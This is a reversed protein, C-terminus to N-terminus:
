IRNALGAAKRAVLGFGNLHSTKQLSILLAKAQSSHGSKQLWQAEVLQAELELGAFGAQHAESRLREMESRAAELQSAELSVRASALHFQLKLQKNDSKAVVASMDEIESRAESIKNQSLLSETLVTGAAIEDDVQQEKQFQEKCRRAVAEAEGARGTEISLKALALQTEAVNQMEGIATRLALSQQFADRAGDLDGRDMLVAGVGTWTFAITSNDNRALALARAEAFNTEAKQLEGRQHWLDGLDNLVLAVGVTDETAEYDPIASELMKKAEDLQGRLLFIDGLNNSTAAAGEPDQLLRFRKAAERWMKEAQRLDGRSYFVGAADNMTRAENYRDGASAYSQMANKCDLAVEDISSGFAAGQQCLIGYARAVLLPSGIAAGKAIARKAAVQAAPLNLGIQASAELLDIQPDENAPPPLARLADLTRLADSPNIRFQATALLLGFDLRDRHLNFLSQYIRVANPLDRMTKAYQGAILLQEEQPLRRSLEVARKAEATSKLRYGLHWLADSLASHALPYNADAAIARTSEDRAGVFDFAWLRANAESYHRVAVGNAPLSARTMGEDEPSLPYAGLSTRLDAGTHSAMEFLEEDSGSVADEAITDGTQTDQVRVDLRVRKTNKGNIPAYSGLVVVDAGPDKRLRNLTSEALSDQNGLAIERKVRAVDEASVIRLIGGAALETGLMNTFADSMWDDEHRGPLNRFGLVAVSRRLRPAVSPAKAQATTSPLKRLARFGFVGAGLGAAIVAVAAIRIKTVGWRNRRAVEAPPGSTEYEKARPPLQPSTRNQQILEVPAVFRYGRRPITEIFRPNDASDDLAERLKGVAVSLSADFDVFTNGPWLRQRVTDRSVIEGANELLLTLLQFPQEQLKVRAGKKQLEGKQPDAEFLGFRYVSLFKSGPSM